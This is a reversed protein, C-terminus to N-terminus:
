QGTKPVALQWQNQTSIIKSQYEEISMFSGPQISVHSGGDDDSLLGHAILTARPIKWLFLNGKEIGSIMFPISVIRNNAASMGGKKHGPLVNIFDSTLGQQLDSIRVGLQRSFVKNPDLSSALEPKGNVMAMVRYVYLNEDEEKIDTRVPSSNPQSEPQTEPAALNKPVAMKEFTAMMEEKNEEVWKAIRIKENLEILQSHTLYYQEDGVTVPWIAFEKEIPQSMDQEYATQFPMLVAGVTLAFTRLGSTIAIEEAAIGTAAETGVTAVAKQGLVEAILEQIVLEEAATLQTIVVATAVNESQELGELEKYAIPTNGSFQYPTYYPYKWDLPDVAFFRGIRPDHMRYEYNISNGEGKIEDDSEQGQFGYRHKENNAQVGHRNDLVTGYPSYDAYNVVDAIYSGVSLDEIIVNDAYFTRTSAVASEFALFSPSGNAVFEFSLNTGNTTNVRVGLNPGGSLNRVYASVNGTATLDIDYSVRYRHGTILGSLTKNANGYLVTSVTKM